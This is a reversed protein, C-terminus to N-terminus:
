QTIRVVYPTRAQHAARLEEPSVLHQEKRGDALQVSVTVPRLCSLKDAHVVPGVGSTLGTEARLTARAGAPLEVELSAVCVSAASAAGFRIGPAQWLLLGVSGIAVAGMAAPWRRRRKKSGAGVAVDEASVVAPAPTRDVGVSQQIALSLARASQEDQVSFNRVLEEVDSRRSPHLTPGADEVPKSVALFPAGTLEAQTPTSQFPGRPPGTRKLSRTEDDWSEGLSKEVRTRMASARSGVLDSLSEAEPGSEAERPTSQPLGLLTRHVQTSSLRSIQYEENVQTVNTSKRPLENWNVADLRRYTRQLERRAAPRNIPILASEIQRAFEPVNQAPGEFRARAAADARSAKLLRALTQRAIVIADEEDCMPGHLQVGGLPDLVLQELSVSRPEEGLQELVALALFGAVEPTIRLSGTLAAHEIHSFTYSM